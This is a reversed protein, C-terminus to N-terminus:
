KRPASQQLAVLESLKALIAVNTANTAAMTANLQDLKQAIRESDSEGIYQWKAKEGKVTSACRMMRGEGDHNLMGPAECEVGKVARGLPATQAAVQAHAASAFAVTAAVILYRNM